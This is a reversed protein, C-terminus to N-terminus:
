VVVGVLHGAEIAIHIASLATCARKAVVREAANAPAANNRVTTPV